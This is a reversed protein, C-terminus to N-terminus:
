IPQNSAYYWHCYPSGIPWSLTSLLSKSHTPQDPTDFEPPSLLNQRKQIQGSWGQAGGPGMALPYQPEERPLLAAM